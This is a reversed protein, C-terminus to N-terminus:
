DYRSELKNEIGNINFVLSLAMAYERNIEYSQSKAMSPIYWGKKYHKHGIKKIKLWNMLKRVYIIVGSYGIRGEYIVKKNESFIVPTPIFNKIMQQAYDNAMIYLAEYYDHMSIFNNRLYHSSEIDITLQKKSNLVYASTLKIKQNENAIWCTRISKICSNLGIIQIDAYYKIGYENIESIEFDCKLINEIIQAELFKYSNKDISLENIFRYAKDKGVEHSPNLCYETLKKSMDSINEYTFLEQAQISINKNTKVEINLRLAKKILRYSHNNHYRSFLKIYLDIKNKEIHIDLDPVKKLYASELLYEYIFNSNKPFRNYNNHEYGINMLIKHDAIYCDKYMYEFFLIYQLPEQLNSEAFGLLSPDKKKLKNAIYLACELTIDTITIVWINKNAFDTIEFKDNFFINKESLGDYLHVASTMLIDKNPTKTYGFSNDDRYSLKTITSAFDLMLMGGYFIYNSSLCNSCFGKGMCASLFDYLHDFGMYKDEDYFFSFYSKNVQM